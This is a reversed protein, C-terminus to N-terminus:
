FSRSVNLRVKRKEEANRCLNRHEYIQSLNLPAHTDNSPEKPSTEKTPHLPSRPPRDLNKEAFISCVDNEDTYNDAYALHRAGRRSNGM